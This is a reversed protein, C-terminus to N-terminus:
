WWLPWFQKNAVISKVSSKRLAWDFTKGNLIYIYLQFPNPANKEQYSSRHYVCNLKKQKTSGMSLLCTSLLKKSNACHFILTNGLKCSHQWPCWPRWSTKPYLAVHRKEFRHLSLHVWKTKKSEKKRITSFFARRTPQAWGAYPTLFLSIKRWNTFSVSRNAPLLETGM